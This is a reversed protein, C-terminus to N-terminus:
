MKCRLLAVSPAQVALCLLGLRPGRSLLLWLAQPREPGRLLSDRTAWFNCRARLACPVLLPTHNCVPLASAMRSSCAGSHADGGAAFAAMVRPPCSSAAANAQAHHKRPVTALCARCGM